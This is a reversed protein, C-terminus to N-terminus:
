LNHKVKSRYVQNIANDRKEFYGTLDREEKIDESNDLSTEKMKQDEINENQPAM